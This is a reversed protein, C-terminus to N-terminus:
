KILYNYKKIALQYGKHILKYESSHKRLFSDMTNKIKIGDGGDYDDMWM